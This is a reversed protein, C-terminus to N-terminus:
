ESSLGRVKETGRMDQGISVFGFPLFLNMFEEMDGYGYPSRDLVVPFKGEGDNESRPFFIRTHLEVGDSMPVMIEM